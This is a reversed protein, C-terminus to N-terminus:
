NPIVKGMAQLAIRIEVVRECDEPSEMLFELGYRYGNRNRVIGRARIPDGTYPPTFEIDVLEGLDLEVGANVTMGGENLENGRGDIYRVKEDTHKLVRVPVDLKYRKFRRSQLFQPESVVVSVAM